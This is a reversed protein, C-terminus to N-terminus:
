VRLRGGDRHDLYGGGGHAHGVPGVAEGLPGVGVQNLGALGLFQEGRHRRCQAVRPGPLARLAGRGHQGFQGGHGKADVRRLGKVPERRRRRGAGGPDEGRVGDQDQLHGVALGAPGRGARAIRTRYPAASWGPQRVPDRTLHEALPLCARDPGNPPIVPQTDHRVARQPHVDTERDRPGLGGLQGHGDRNVVGGNGTVLVPLNQTLESVQDRNADLGQV